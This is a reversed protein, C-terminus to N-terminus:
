RRKGIQDSCIGMRRAVRDLKFQRGDPPVTELIIICAGILGKRGRRHRTM